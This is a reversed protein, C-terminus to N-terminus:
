FKLSFEGLNMSYSEGFKAAQFRGRFKPQFDGRFNMSYFEGFKAAQFRGRFNSQFNGRFIMSYFDGIKERSIEGEWQDDFRYHDHIQFEKDPYGRQLLPTHM